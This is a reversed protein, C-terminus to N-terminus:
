ILSNLLEAVDPATDDWYHTHAGAGICMETRLDGNVKHIPEPYRGDDPKGDTRRYWEELWLSRGIYDGSRYTNLWRAVGLERPDPLAHTPIAIPPVTGPDPLPHLGNDPEARVWDYLYPFFRNLLQRTPNGMTLLTIPITGPQQNGSLGFAALQPDGDSYLFRLLDGSILAGLSHAVIVVSDYGRGDADRYGALYRLTSVYREVIQARPTADAPSTRLYTDVDLVARLILSGYRVIAAVAAGFIAFTGAWVFVIQITVDQFRSRWMGPLFYFVLPAVFIACWFLPSIVSIADLGRSNWTGLRVSQANTSSRPPESKERLPFRETSVGPVIWWGLLFLALGFLALTIPLQYGVSWALVGPLYDAPKPRPCPSTIACPDAKADPDPVQGAVVVPDPILHLTMLWEGDPPPTLLTEEFFPKHVWRAISFMGAWMMSTIVLFLLAPLALAFQSTRVAARVRARKANDKQRWCALTGLVLALFAFVILLMWSARISAIVWEATWFTAQPVQWQIAEAGERVFAVRLYVAFILFCAGYVLWGTAEVGKRVDEYNHLVFLLLPLGLILWSAVSGAIAPNTLWSLLWGAAAGLIGPVLALLAWLWPNFKVPKQSRNLVFLDIVVGALAFMLIPFWSLDYKKGLLTPICSFIVILLVVKALPIFIQLMRVAYRQMALYLQWLIGTNEASGTDIALRSLSALHLVLQFLALLFSLITSDPRALDAWLVEYIHVDAEGGPAKASRKGVLRTTIYADSNAGGKYGQLLLRMFTNGAKGREVVKNKKGYDTALEAFKTSQEEYLAALGTKREVPLPKAQVPQLPIQVGVSRFFDFHRSASPDTAPLSFLLNAMADETAGAAHAGVGHVGVIAVRPVCVATSALDSNSPDEPSVATGTPHHKEDTVRSQNV